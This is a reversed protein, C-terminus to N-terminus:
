GALALTLRQLAGPLLVDATFAQHRPDELYRCAIM